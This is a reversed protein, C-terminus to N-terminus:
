LATIWSPNPPCKPLIVSNQLYSAVNVYKVSITQNQVESPKELILRSPSPSVERMVWGLAISIISEVVKGELGFLAKEKEKPCRLDLPCVWLYWCRYQCHKVMGESAWHV